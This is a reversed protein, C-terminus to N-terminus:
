MMLMMVVHFLYGTEGNVVVTQQAANVNAALVNDAVLCHGSEVDAHLRRVALRRQM